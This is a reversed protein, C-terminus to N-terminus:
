LVSQAGRGGLGDGLAHVCASSVRVFGSDKCGDESRNLLKGVAGNHAIGRAREADVKLHWLTQELDDNYWPGDSGERCIIHRVGSPPARGITSGPHSLSAPATLATSFADDDLGPAAKDASYATPDTSAPRAELAANRATLEEFVALHVDLRTEIARLRIVVDRMHWLGSSDDIASVFALYELYETPFDEVYASSATSGTFAGGAALRAPLGTGMPM